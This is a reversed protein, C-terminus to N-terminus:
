VATLRLRLRPWSSSETQQAKQSEFGGVLLLSQQILFKAGDDSVEPMAEPMM